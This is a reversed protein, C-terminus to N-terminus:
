IGRHILKRLIGCISYVTHSLSYFNIKECNQLSPLGDFHWCPQARTFGREKPKGQESPLFLERDKEEGLAVLGILTPSWEESRM